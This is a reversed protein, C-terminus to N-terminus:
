KIWPRRNPPDSSEAENKRIVECFLPCLLKETRFYPSGPEVFIKAYSYEPSEPQNDVVSEWYSTFEGAMGRGMIITDMGDTLAQLRELQLRDMEQSIWDLEGGPGSIFGDISINIQLKLKRM